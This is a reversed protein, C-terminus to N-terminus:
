HWKGGKICVHVSVDVDVDVSVERFGGCAGRQSSLLGKVGRSVSVQRPM